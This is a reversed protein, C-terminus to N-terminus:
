LRFQTTGQDLLVFHVFVSIGLFILAGERDLTFLRRSLWRYLFGVGIMVPLIGFLGFQFLPAFPAEIAICAAVMASVRLLADQFVGLDIDWKWTALMIAVIETGFRLPLPLGRWFSPAPPLKTWELLGLVVAVTLLLLVMSQSYVDPPALPVDSRQYELPEPPM